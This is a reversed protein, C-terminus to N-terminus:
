ICIIYLCYFHIFARANTTKNVDGRDFGNPFATGITSLVVNEPCEPDQNLTLMHHRAHELTTAQNPTRQIMGDRPTGDLRDSITMGDTTVRTPPPVPNRPAHPVRGGRRQLPPPPWDCGFETCSCLM